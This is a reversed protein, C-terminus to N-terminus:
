AAINFLHGVLTTIALAAGGLLLVRLAGRGIPAGGAQAGLAGLVLLAILSVGIIAYLVSPGPFLLATALPIAGGVTFTLASAISAQLPNASSTESMGLEDRAHTELADHRMLQDAVERALESDLGRGEYITALEDREMQPNERLAEAERLLDARESDAQSGVSMYEGAAMSMAGAVVGAVGTLILQSPTVAAAAVGSMLSGTSLLGDNAGLVAARLWGSRTVFHMEQAHGDDPASRPKDVLAAKGRDDLALTRNPDNVAKSAISM